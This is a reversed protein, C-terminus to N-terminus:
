TRIAKVPNSLGTRITQVVILLMTIGGLAAFAMLFPEASLAIRYTYDNLWGNMLWWAVPCALLVAIWMIGAFEKIFLLVISSVSAGLVKRIGVERTRRQISLSVLGLVGLLVILISLGTALQSAQKLQLETKYLKRLTDDMFKYEFATGPMLATWQRQLDAIAQSTQGPKLRISLFRFILGRSVHIFSIPQIAQQMSGFHFDRTVGAVTYIVPDGAIRLRAGIAEEANTWGLARAQTANIVMRTSDTVAGEQYFNGAAMPISYTPAFYEDTNLVVSTIAQTSDSGARYVSISGSNNGDPVEYSLSVSQVQPLATLQRRVHEMKNVGATTWDRPVQASIVYEKDYGLNNGFFFRVQSAIVLAGVFVIVATAFQFGVLGRRLWKNEKVSQLKGKLAEVSPLSSLVLAPYIGALLGIVLIGLPIYAAFHLPFSTLAPLDRGLISEALDKVLMYVVLAIIMSFTTIVVSETMFQMILQWRRGGAVKRVGIERMRTSARSVSMNVFNIAAMFLIFVAIASLAYLMKRILGKNAQLHLESLPMLETKMNAAIFPHANQSIQQRIPGDLDKPSVGPKLEIYNVIFPNSWDMNRGFFQLNKDSVFISTPYDDILRSVSNYGADELVGTILFDHKGGSFNEVSLIKGLAPNKGFYKEATSATIVATYPQNLATAADGESLKFGYMSIFTSDGIQLSERFCKDGMCVNSTVGDYRYYSAVLNPYNVYLEKALPGATALEFGQNANKWVSRILYQQKPNKLQQNVQLETWVYAGILLAFGLGAGLGIMNILAYLKHKKLNRWAIKLYNRLM